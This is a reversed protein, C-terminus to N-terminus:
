LPKTSQRRSESQFRKRSPPSLLSCSFVPSQNASCPGLPLAHWLPSQPWPVGSSGTRPSPADLAKHQPVQVAFPELVGFWVGLEEPEGSKGSVEDPGWSIARVTGLTPPPGPVPARTHSRFACIFGLQTPSPLHAQTEWRQSRLLWMQSVLDDPGAM